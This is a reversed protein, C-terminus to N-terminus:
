LYLKKIRLFKIKTMGSIYIPGNIDFHGSWPEAATMLGDRYFPLGEYYSAIPNWSITSIFPSWLYNM